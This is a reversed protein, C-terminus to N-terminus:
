RKLLEMYYDQHSIICKEWNFEREVFRRAESAISVRVKTTSLLRGIGAALASPSGPPVLLGNVENNIVEVTGGTATAVVACGSLMYELLANSSGESDSCIVGIACKYLYNAVDDVRGTFVVKDAIGAEAAQRQYQEKLKGDGVLYWKVSPYRPSLIAAADLFIDARKVHRNLNGVLVVSPEVDAPENFGWGKTDLGNNIVKINNKVQFSKKFELAAAESNSLFGNASSTAIKMLMSTMPTRWFGMDRISLIRAKVGAKKAASLGLLTPDQFFTQVVQINNEKIYRVLMNRSKLGNRSFLKPVDMEFVPCDMQKLLEGSPRLTCLHPTFLSRDLGNVLGLVQLETGGSAICDICFLIPVPNL